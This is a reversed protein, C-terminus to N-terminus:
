SPSGKQPTIDMDDFLTDTITRQQQREARKGAREHGDACVRCLVVEAGDLTVLFLRYPGHEGGAHRCRGVSDPDLASTTSYTRTDHAHTNKCTKVDRCQCQWDARMMARRWLPMDFIPGGSDPSDPRETDTYNAM